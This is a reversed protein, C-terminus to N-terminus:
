PHECAYRQRRELATESICLTHLFPLVVESSTPQISDILGVEDIRVSSRWICSLERTRVVDDFLIHNSVDPQLSVHRARHFHRATHLRSDIVTCSIRTTTHSLSFLQQSCSAQCPSFCSREHPPWRRVHLELSRSCVVGCRGFWFGTDSQFLATRWCQNLARFCFRRIVTCPVHFVPHTPLM